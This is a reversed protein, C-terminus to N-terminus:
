CIDIVIVGCLSVTVSFSTMGNGIQLSSVGERIGQVFGAEEGRGAGRFSPVLYWNPLASTMIKGRRCRDAPSVRIAIATLIVLGCRECM